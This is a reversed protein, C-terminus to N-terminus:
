RCLSQNVEPHGYLRKPENQSDDMGFDGQAADAVIRLQELAWRMKIVNWGPADPALVRCICRLPDNLVNSLKPSPQHSM